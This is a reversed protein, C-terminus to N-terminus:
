REGKHFELNRKHNSRVILFKISNQGDQSTMRANALGNLAGKNGNLSGHHIPRGIHRHSLINRACISTLKNGCGRDEGKCKPLFWTAGRYSWDRSVSIKWMHKINISWKRNWYFDIFMLNIKFGHNTFTVVPEKVDGVQM